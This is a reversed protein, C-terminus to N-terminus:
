EGVVKCAVTGYPTVLEAIYLGAVPLAVRQEFTGAQFYDNYVSVLRGQADLLRLQAEAAAPLYFRLTTQGSAPNPRASLTLNERAVDAASTSAQTFALQVPQPYLDTTYALAPMLAEDLALLNSLLDGGATATFQLTFFATGDPLTEGQPRALVLRLEGQPAQAVGFHEEALPSGPPTHISGFALKEPDFHLVFQFAAIDTYGDVAFVVDVRDGTQLVRDPARLVVPQPRQQPNAWPSAVDGLKVGIFDVGTVGDAVSTLSVSEPFNWPANPNPFVYDADVFRWSTNWINNANQNGLLAQTILNADATTISKSKNVDAAIRPFPAGLPSSGTVHQQIRTADAATVGNFKNINKVPTITINGGDQLDILYDGNADSMGSGTDDGSLTVTADKVGQSPATSWRISGGLVCGPGSYEYAGMDVTGNNHFRPDGALDTTIGPPVQANNGADIAPSCGLLRLGDDPTGFVGDPGAPLAPNVFLPDQNNIIGTGSSFLSNAQTLCHTVTIGGFNEIDAGAVDNNGNKKNEWFINNHLQGTPADFILQYVAGAFSAENAYFANNIISQRANNYVTFAYLAGGSGGAENQSFTNHSITQYADGFIAIAYLAGGNNGAENQSFANNAITQGTNDLAAYAYLAGGDDAESRSFTNHTITQSANGYFATAYLAGGSGGAENQRFTNHSITQYADGFIAIAYLAGGLSGAEHQSFTNHSITQHADGNEAWAWFASGNNQNLNKGSVTIGSGGDAHGGTLTFGDLTCHQDDLSVVIAVHYSNDAGTGNQYGGQDIDFVDNGALDGSLITTHAAIDRAGGGAPYGGYVAVNGPLHFTVDRVDATTMEAGNMYPKKAPKYTGAAVNIVRVNPCNHAAYLAEDLTKFAGAWSTGVGSAGISQDVYLTDAGPCPFSEYAGLDVIGDQIRPIFGTIDTSVGTPIAGNNGANLAPSGAQLRLDVASVFLPDANGDGNPCNACPSYGGQIISYSVTPTSNNANVIETGNGWLICNTINTGNSFISNYIGGGATASNGSFSCNTIFHGTQENYIGGGTNASNGTFRCNTTKPASGIIYMAGGLDASNGSFHCNTVTPNAINNFMGGGSANATNNLFVCNAVTPAGGSNFMGGGSNHPFNGDANGGSITFGDLVATNDLGNQDNFLVHFSNDSNGPNGIDGSLITENATWDREAWGPNGTNPFGGYLAVDNKLVFAHTRIGPTYGSGQDPRYTGAAVWINAGPCAVALADQLHTFADEWSTGNNAGTANQNVYVVSGCPCVSTLTYTYDLYLDPNYKLRIRVTYTEGDADGVTGFGTTLGFPDATIGAFTPNGSFTNGAVVAYELGATNGNNDGTLDISLSGQFPNPCVPQSATFDATFVAAGLCEIIVQGGANNADPTNNQNAGLNISGGGKAAGTPFGGAFRNGGEGGTFGGGGGGGWRVSNGGGGGGFGGGGNGGVAGACWGRGTGGTANFGSGGGLPASGCGNTSGTGGGSLVGGGGAGLRGSGGAGDGSTTSGGTSGFFGGGGGGGGAIILVSGGGTLHVGTGGGGGGDGVNIGDGGPAGAIVEINQGQLLIFDGATTAGASGGSGGKAGKATIKVKYPGGAPVEWSGTTGNQSHTSASINLVEGPCSQGHAHFSFQSTFLAWLAILSVIKKM